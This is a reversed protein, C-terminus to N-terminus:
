LGDMSCGHAKLESEPIYRNGQHARIFERVKASSKAQEITLGWEKLRTEFLTPVVPADPQNPKGWLPNGRQKTM